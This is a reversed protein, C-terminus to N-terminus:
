LYLEGEALIVGTGSIKIEINKNNLINIQAYIKSPRGMAEGQLFYRAPKDFIIGHKYFYYILGGSATGTAAEEDIGFLPAFNRTHAIIEGSLAVHSPSGSNSQTFAPTFAHLGGAVHTECLKSILAFNPSINALEKQSNVPVFIDPFGASIIQPLFEVVKGDDLTLSIPTYSIGLSSYIENIEDITFSSKLVKPKPMKMVIFDGDIEITLVGSLTNILYSNDKKVIGSTLMCAFAGITAHGCFDVESTPTFYRIDFSGNPLSKVFATESYRLEAATKLMIEDSPFESGSDILVVGAPNGGFVEETFADVIFFRM